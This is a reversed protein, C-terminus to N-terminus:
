APELVTAEAEEIPEADLVLGQERQVGLPDRDDVLELVQAVLQPRDDGFAMTASGGHVALRRQPRKRGLVVVETAALQSRRARGDKAAVTGLREGLEMRQEVEVAVADVRGRRDLCKGVGHAVLDGLASDAADFAADVFGVGAEMGPPAPEAM